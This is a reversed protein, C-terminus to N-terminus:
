IAIEEYTSWMAINGMFPVIWVATKDDKYVRYYYVEEDQIDHRRIERYFRMASDSVEDPKILEKQIIKVQFVDVDLGSIKKRYQEFHGRAKYKIPTTLCNQDTLCASFYFKGSTDNEYVLSVSIDTRVLLENVVPFYIDAHYNHEVLQNDGPGSSPILNKNYRIRQEMKESLAMFDIMNLGAPQPDVSTINILGKGGCMGEVSDRCIAVSYNSGDTLAFSTLHQFGELHNKEPAIHKQWMSSHLREVGDLYLLTAKTSTGGINLEINKDASWHATNKVVGHYDSCYWIFGIVFALLVIGMTKVSLSVNVVAALISEADSIALMKVHSQESVHLQYGRRAITKLQVETYPDLKKRLTSICQTLSTQAVVRDPWGAQLLQEKSCVDDCSQLLMVLVEAESFTLEIETEGVSDVIKKAAIDLALYPTIILV